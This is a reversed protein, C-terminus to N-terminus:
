FPPVPRGRERRSWTRLHRPDALDQIRAVANGPNEAGAPHPADVERLVNRDLPRERKLEQVGLDALDVFDGLAELALRKCDPADVVGVAHVDRIEALERVPGEVHHQLQEVAHQKGVQELPFLPEVPLPNQVNAAVDQAREIVRVARSDNMAVDLGLIDNEDLLFVVWVEGLDEVEANGLKVVVTCATVVVGARQAMVRLEGLM